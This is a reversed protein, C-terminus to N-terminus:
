ATNLRDVLAFLVHANPTSGVRLTTPFNVMRDKCKLRIYGNKADVTDLESWPVQTRGYGVGEPAVWFSGFEVRQGARVAELARPLHIAATEREIEAGLVCVQGRPFTSDNLEVKHGDDHLLRYTYSGVRPSTHVHHGIRYVDRLVRIDPWELVDLRGKADRYVLGGEYRWVGPPVDESDMVVTVVTVLAM